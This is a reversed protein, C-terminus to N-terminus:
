FAQNIKPWFSSFVFFLMVFEARLNVYEFASLSGIAGTEQVDHCFYFIIIKCSQVILIGNVLQGCYYFLIFKFSSNHTRMNNQSTLFIRIRRSVLNEIYAYAITSKLDLRTQFCYM